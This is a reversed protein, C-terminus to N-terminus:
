NGERWSKVFDVMGQVFIYVAIFGDVVAVQEIPMEGGQVEVITYIVGILAMLLKRSFWKDM